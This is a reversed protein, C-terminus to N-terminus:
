DDEKVEYEANKLNELRKKKVAEAKAKLEAARQTPDTLDQGATLQAKRTAVLAERIKAVNKGAKEMIELVPNIVDAFIPEGQVTGGVQERSVLKPDDSLHVSCRWRILEQGALEYLMDMDFSFAPDDVDEIGLAELHKSVWTAVISDEVPCREKLPLDAGASALPCASLFPCQPGDCLMPISGVFGRSSRDIFDRIINKSKEPLDKTRQAVSILNNAAAERINRQGGRRLDSLEL